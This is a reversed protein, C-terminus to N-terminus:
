FGLSLQLELGSEDSPRVRFAVRGGERFRYMHADVYADAVSLFWVAADWWLLNYRRDFHYSYDDYYSWDRTREFRKWSDETKIHEYLTMGLLAGQSFFFALGRIHSETYFQGGGPLIASSVAAWFPSKTDKPATVQVNRWWPTEQQALGREGAVASACLFFFCTALWLGRKRRVPGASKPCSQTRPQIM